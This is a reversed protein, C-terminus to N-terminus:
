SQLQDCFKCQKLGTWTDIEYFQHKCEKKNDWYDNIVKVVKYKSLNYKKAITTYNNEKQTLFHLIINNKLDKDM